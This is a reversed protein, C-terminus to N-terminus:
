KAERGAYKAQDIVLNLARRRNSSAVGKRTLRRHNMALVLASSLYFWTQSDHGFSGGHIDVGTFGSGYFGGLAAEILFSLHQQRQDDRTVLFDCCFTVSM